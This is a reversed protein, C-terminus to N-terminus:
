FKMAGGLVAEDSQRSRAWVIFILVVMYKSPSLQFFSRVGDLMFETGRLDVALGIQRERRLGFGRGQVM